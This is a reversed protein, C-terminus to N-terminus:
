QRYQLVVRFYGLITPLIRMKSNGKRKSGVLIMPVESVKAGQRILRALLEVMCAFGNEIFFKGNTERYLKKLVEPKYVRYFSSFTKVQEIGCGWRIVMNGVESILMRWWPVDAFGGGTTYYSAVCVDSGFDIDAIMKPLIELDSTNDLEMTVICDTTGAQELAARLGRRFAFGPGGNPKYSIVKVPLFKNFSRAVKATQDRSGDDVVIILKIWKHWSTTKLSNMWIPLDLEENYAPAVIFLKKEKNSNKM